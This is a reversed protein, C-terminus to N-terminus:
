WIADKPAHVKNEQRHRHEAQASRASQRPHPGDLPSHRKRLESDPMRQCKTRDCEMQRLALQIPDETAKDLCVGNLPCGARRAEFRDKSTRRRRAGQRRQGEAGEALMYDFGTMGQM